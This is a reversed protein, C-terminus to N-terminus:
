QIRYFDKYWEIFKKIGDKIKTEPKFGIYSELYNTNAYTAEVDGPQMPLYDIKAKIGLTVELANIYEMLSVPNSNGINFIKFPAWSKSPDPNLKDITTDSKAPKKILLTINSKM